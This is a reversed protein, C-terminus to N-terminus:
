DEVTVYGTRPTPNTAKAGPMCYMVSDTYDYSFTREDIPILTETAQWRCGNYTGRIEFKFPQLEKTPFELTVAGSRWASLYFENPREIAHLALRRTVTEETVAVKVTGLAMVIGVFAVSRFVPTTLAYQM